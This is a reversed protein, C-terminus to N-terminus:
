IKLSVLQRKGLPKSFVEKVCDFQYKRKTENVEYASIVYFSMGYFKNKYMYDQCLKVFENGEMFKMSDDTFVHNITIDNHLSWYIAYLAEIGDAAEIIILEIPKGLDKYYHEIVKISSQRIISEDDVVLICVKVLQNDEDYPRFNIIKETNLQIKKFLINSQIKQTLNQSNSQSSHSHKHNNANNINMNNLNNINSLNNLNNINSSGTAGTFNLNLNLNANINLNNFNPYKSNSTNNSNNVSHRKSKSNYDANSIVVKPLNNYEKGEIFLSSDINKLNLNGINGLSSLQNYNNVGSINNLSTLNNLSSINSLNSIRPEKTSTRLVSFGDKITEVNTIDDFLFLGSKKTVSKFHSKRRNFLPTKNNNTNTNSLIPNFFTVPKNTTSTRKRMLPSPDMFKLNKKKFNEDNKYKTLSSRYPVKNTSIVLNSNNSNINNSNSNNTTNINIHNNSHSNTNSRKNKSLLSTRPKTKEKVIEKSDNFNSLRNDSNRFVPQMTIFDFPDNILVSFNLRKTDEDFVDEKYESNNCSKNYNNNSKNKDYFLISNRPKIIPAIINNNNNSFSNQLDNELDLDLTYRLESLFKNSHWMSRGRISDHRGQDEKSKNYTPYVDKLFKVLSKSNSGKRVGKDDDSSTDVESHTKKSLVGEVTQKSNSRSRQTNQLKNMQSNRSLKSLRSNSIFSHNSKKRLISKRAVSQLPNNTNNNNITNYQNHKEDRIVTSENDSTKSSVENSETIRDHSVQSAESNTDTFNPEQEPTKLPITIIFKSGKPVNKEYKISGGICDCLDKVIMLGLGTGYYNNKGVSMNFNKDFLGDPNNIGIGTDSVIFELSETEPVRKVILKIIGFHTFKISNSILNILIQRLRLSDTLITHPISQDLESSFKVNLSTKKMLVVSLEHLFEIEKRINIDSIVPKIGNSSEKKALVEFDFVLSIIYASLSKVTMLKLLLNEQIGRAKEKIIDANSSRERDRLLSHKSEPANFNNFTFISNTRSDTTMISDRNTLKRIFQKSKRMDFNNNNTSSRLLKIKNSSNNNNINTINASSNTNINNINNFNSLSHLSNNNNYNNCTNNINNNSKSNRNSNYFKQNNASNSIGTSNYNNSNINNSTNGMSFAHKFNISNGRNSNNNANNNANNYNTMGGFDKELYFIKNPSSVNDLTLNSNTYRTKVLVNPSNDEIISKGEDDHEEINSLRSQDLSNVNSTFCSAAEITSLLRIFWDKEVEFLHKCSQTRRVIKEKKIVEFYLNQSSTNNNGRRFRVKRRSVDEKDDKDPNYGDMEKKIEIQINDEIIQEEEKDMISGEEYKNYFQMNNNNSANSNLDIEMNGYSKSRYRFLKNKGSRKSSSMETIGLNSIASLDINVTEKMQETLEGICILPNKFEHAIKAMLTTKSRIEAKELEVQKYRTVDKFFFEILNMEIYSRSIVRMSVEIYAFGITDEENFKNANINNNNNTTTLIESFVSQRKTSANKFVFKKDLKLIGIYVSQKFSSMNESFINSSYKAKGDKIEKLHNLFNIPLNTNLEEFYSIVSEDLFLKDTDDKEKENVDIPLSYKNENSTEEVKKNKNDKNSQSKNNVDKLSFDSNLKCSCRCKPNNINLLNLQDGNSINSQKSNDKEQSQNNNGWTFFNNGNEKSNKSDKSNKSSEILKNKGNQEKLEKFLDKNNANNNLFDKNSNNNDKIGLSLLYNHSNNNEDFQIQNNEDLISVQRVKQYSNQKSNSISNNNSNSNSNSNINNIFRGPSKSKDKFKDELNAFPLIVKISNNNNSNSNSNINNNNINNVNNVDTNSSKVVLRVNKSRSNSDESGELKDDCINKNNTKFLCKCEKAVNDFNINNSKVLKNDDNIANEHKDDDFKNNSKACVDKRYYFSRFLADTKNNSYLIEKDFNIILVGSNLNNLTTDLIEKKKTLEIQHILKLKFDKDIQYIHILEFLCTFAYVFKFLNMSKGFYTGDQIPLSGIIIFNLINLTTSFITYKFELFDYSSLIIRTFVFLTKLWYCIGIFREYHLYCIRTVTFILIGDSLFFLTLSLYVLLKNIFVEIVIPSIPKSYYDMSLNSFSLFNNNFFAKFTNGQELQQPQPKTSESHLFNDKEKVKDREKEKNEEKKNSTHEEDDIKINNNIKNNYNVNDKIVVNKNNSSKKNVGHLKFAETSAVTNSNNLLTVLPTGDNVANSLRQNIPTGIHLCSNGNCKGNPSQNNAVNINTNVNDNLNNLNDEEKDTELSYEIMKRDLYYKVVEVVAKTKVKVLFFCTNLIILLITYTKLLSIIEGEIYILIMTVINLIFTSYIIISLLGKVKTYCHYDFFCSFIENTFNLSWLKLPKTNKNNDTFFFSDM